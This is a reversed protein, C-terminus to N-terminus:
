FSFSFSSPILKILNILSVNLSDFNFSFCFL